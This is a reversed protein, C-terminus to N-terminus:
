RKQTKINKGWTGTSSANKFNQKSSKSFFLSIFISIKNISTGRPSPHHPKWPNTNDKSCRIFNIHCTLIVSLLISDIGQILFAEMLSLPIIGMLHIKASLISPRQETPFFFRVRALQLSPFIVIFLELFVYIFARFHWFFAFFFDTELNGFILLRIGHFLLIFSCSFIGKQSWHRHLLFQLFYFFNFCLKLLQFSFRNLLIDLILNGVSPCKGIWGKPFKVLSGTLLGISSCVSM